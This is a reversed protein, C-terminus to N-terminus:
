LNKAAFLNYLWGLVMGGLGGDVGAYCTGVVVDAFTGSAHFGPYISAIAKLFELAYSPWIMNAIGCLLIAGGWLLAGALGLAKLSLKMSIRRELGCWLLAFGVRM